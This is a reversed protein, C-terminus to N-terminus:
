QIVVWSRHRVAGSSVPAFSTPWQHTYLDIITNEYYIGSGSTGAENNGIRLDNWTSATVVSTKNVTSAIQTGDSAKYVATYALGARFDYANVIWVALNIGLAPGINQITTATDTHLTYCDANTTPTGGNSGSCGGNIYQTAAFNGNVAESVLMDFSQWSAGQDAITIYACSITTAWISTDGTVLSYAVNRQATAGTWLISKSTNSTAFVTGNNLTVSTPLTCASHHVGVQMNADPTTTCGTATCVSWAGTVNPGHTGTELNGSTAPSLTTGTADAVNMDIFDDACMGAATCAAVLEVVSTVRSTGTTVTCNTSAWNGSAAANTDSVRIAPTAADDAAVSSMGTPTCTAATKDGIFGVFWNASREQNTAPYNATTGSASGNQSANGVGQTCAGLAAVAATGSYAAAAVASGNTTAAPISTDSGSTAFHCYTAMGATSARTIVKTWGATTQTPATTSANNFYFALVVDNTNVGSLTCTSTSHIACSGSRAIAGWSPLASLLVVLLLLNRM